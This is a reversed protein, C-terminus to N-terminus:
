YNVKVITHKNSIIEDPYVNNVSFNLKGPIFKFVVNCKNKLNECNKLFYTNLPKKYISERLFLKFLIKKSVLSGAKLTVGLLLLSKVLSM